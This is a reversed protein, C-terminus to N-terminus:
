LIRRNLQGFVGAFLIMMRFNAVVGVKIGAFQKLAVRLFMRSRIYWRSNKYHNDLLHCPPSQGKKHLVQNVIDSARLAHDVKMANSCKTVSFIIIIRQATAIQRLTCWSRDKVLCNLLNSLQEFFLMFKDSFSEIVKVIADSFISPTQSSVIGDIKALIRLFQTLFSSYLHLSM